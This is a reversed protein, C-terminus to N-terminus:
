RKASVSGASPSQPKKLLLEESRKPGELGRVLVQTVSTVIVSSSSLTASLHGLVCLRVPEWLDCALLRRCDQALM